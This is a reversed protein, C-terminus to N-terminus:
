KAFFSEILKLLLLLLLLLVVKFTKACKPCCAMISTYIERAKKNYESLQKSYTPPIDQVSKTPPKPPPRWRSPHKGLEYNDWSRMCAQLHFKFSTLSLTREGCLYCIWGPQGWPYRVYDQDVGGLGADIQVGLTRSAAKM